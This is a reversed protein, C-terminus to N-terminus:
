INILKQGINSLSCERTIENQKQIRKNKEIKSENIAFIMKSILSNLSPKNYWQDITNYMYYLRDSDLCEVIESETVYGTDQVLESLATNNNVITNNNFCMAELVSYGFSEGSSINILCDNNNHIYKIGDYKIDGVLVKPKKFHNKRIASYIKEFEYEISQETIISASNFNRTKISLEIDYQDSLILFALLIVDINKRKIFDSIVYFSFIESTKKNDTQYKKIKDIDIPEKVVEIKTKLNNKELLINKVHESGVVINDMINLYESLYGNYRSAELHVICINQDFKNSYCLQHPYCHQIVKHYKKSFNSELELIDSDIESDPYSKFINYIPRISLNCGTTILSKIYARAANGMGSFERYPGIYLVNSM